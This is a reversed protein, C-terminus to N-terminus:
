QSRDTTSPAVLTGRGRSKVKPGTIRVATGDVWLDVDEPRIRYAGGRGLHSARLSGRSIARYVTRVSVQCQDAVQDVTMLRTETM